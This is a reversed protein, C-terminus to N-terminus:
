EVQVGLHIHELGSAPHDGPAPPTRWSIWYTRSFTYHWSLLAVLVRDSAPKHQTPTGTLKSPVAHAIKKRHLSPLPSGYPFILHTVPHVVTPGEDKICQPLIRCSLM